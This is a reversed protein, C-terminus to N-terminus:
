REYIDGIIFLIGNRWITSANKNVGSECYLLLNNTKRMTVKIHYVNSLNFKQLESKLIIFDSGGNNYIFYRDESTEKLTMEYTITEPQGNFRDNFNFIAIITLIIMGIAFITFGIARKSM